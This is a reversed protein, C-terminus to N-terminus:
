FHLALGLGSQGSQIAFYPQPNRAYGHDANYTHVSEHMRVYGVILCPISAVELLGGVASLAAGAYALPPLNTASQAQTVTIGSGIICGAGAISSGIGLGFCIWGANAVKFGSRFGEYAARCNQQAYWDLMQYRNMKKDGYYYTNGSRELIMRRVHPAESAVQESSSGAAQPPAATIQADQAMASVAMMTAALLIFLKRM